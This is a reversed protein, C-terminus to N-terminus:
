LFKMLHSTLYLDCAPLSGFGSDEGVVTRGNIGLESNNELLAQTADIVPTDSTPAQPNPLRYTIWTGNGHLFGQYHAPCAYHASEMWQDKGGIDASCQKHFHRECGLCKLLKRAKAVQELCVCCTKTDEPKGVGM